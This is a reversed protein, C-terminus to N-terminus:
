GRETGLVQLLVGDSCQGLSVHLHICLLLTQFAPGVQAQTGTAWAQETRALPIRAAGVWEEGHFVPSGRSAAPVVAPQAQLPQMRDVSFQPVNPFMNQGVRQSRELPPKWPRSTSSERALYRCPSRPHHCCCLAQEQDASRDTQKSPGPCMIKNGKCEDQSRPADPGLNKNKEHHQQQISNFAVCRCWTTLVAKGLM